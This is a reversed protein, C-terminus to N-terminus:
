PGVKIGASSLKSQWRTFEQREMDLTVTGLDQNGTCVTNNLGCNPFWMPNNSTRGDSGVRTWGVVNDRMVNNAFTPPTLKGAGYPDWVYLGVNAAPLRTGDPLRGSGVVRNNYMQHSVGGAIALGHNTTGVIQNNYVRTYGSDLPDSVKGDGLLIGGGAYNTTTAPSVPYAGQIYNDHILMPSNPTGSSALININEETASKGPENIIENWAVEVNPVRRVANMHLAQVIHSANQYGGNGDSKTGNVNRIQNRLIKITDGRNPDGWFERIYIGGTNEFYSNEIRLSMLEEAAVAYGHTRGAVNPNLAYGRTNRITVRNRFGHILHGRGRINSNEIIVPESTRISVAAGTDQSEWNGSYTGGKTIILKGSYQVNGSVPPAPAISATGGCSRLMANAWDAHDYNLGDGADTVVLKLENKGAVNVNVARGSDSGRVVGSDYLKVGDAYVQFVVSGRDGVEDDMGVTATFSTCQGGIQFTMSSGAHVGFGNAFTQGGISLTRGDGANKEGNSRNVEIPGWANTAATWGEYSLTNDGSNIAQAKIGGQRGDSSWSHDKGDYVFDVPPQAAAQAPAKSAPGGGCASLALTLALLGLPALPLRLPSLPQQTM